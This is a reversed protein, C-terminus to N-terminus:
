LFVPLLRFLFYIDLRHYLTMNSTESQIVRCEVMIIFVRNRVCEPLYRRAVSDDDRLGGEEESQNEAPEAMAVPNTVSGRALPIAQDNIAVIACICMTLPHDYKAVCTDRNVYLMSGVLTKINVERRYFM